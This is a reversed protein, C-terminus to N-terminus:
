GTGRDYFAGFVSNEDGALLTLTQVRREAPLWHGIYQDCCRGAVRVRGSRRLEGLDFDRDEDDDGLGARVGGTRRCAGCQNRCSLASRRARSVRSKRCSLATGMRAAGAHLVPGYGVALRAAQSPARRIQALGDTPTVARVQEELQDGRAILMRAHDDGGVLLEVTPALHEPSSTAVAAM